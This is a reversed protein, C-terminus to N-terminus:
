NTSYESTSEWKFSKMLYAWIDEKRNLRELILFSKAESNNFLMENSFAIVIVAVYVQGLICLLVSFIRGEHTVPFYDGYGVTTM